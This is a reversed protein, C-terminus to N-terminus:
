IVKTKRPSISRNSIVPDWLTRMCDCRHLMSDAPLLLLERLALQPQCTCRELSKWSATFAPDPVLPCAVCRAKRWWAGTPNAFAIRCTEDPARRVGIRGGGREQRHTFLAEVPKHIRHRGPDELGEEM